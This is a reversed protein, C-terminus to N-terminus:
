IPWCACLIGVCCFQLGMLGIIFLTKQITVQPPVVVDKQFLEKGHPESFVGGLGGVWFGLVRVERRKQGKHPAWTSVPHRTSDSGTSCRGEDQVQPYCDINPTM